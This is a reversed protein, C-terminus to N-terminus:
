GGDFLYDQPLPFQGPSHGCRYLLARADTINRDSENPMASLSKGVRLCHWRKKGNKYEDLYNSGQILVRRTLCQTSAKQLQKQCLLVSPEESELATRQPWSGNGMWGFVKKQWPCLITRQGDLSENWHMKTKRSGPDMERWMKEWKGVTSMRRSKWANLQNQMRLFDSGMEQWSVLLLLLPGQSEGVFQLIKKRRKSEWSEWVSSDPKM